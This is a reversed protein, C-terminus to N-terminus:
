YSQNKRAKGRILYDNYLDPIGTTYNLYMELMFYNQNKKAYEPRHYLSAFLTLNIKFLNVLIYLM